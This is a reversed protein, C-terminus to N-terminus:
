KGGARGVPLRQLQDVLDVPVVFLVVVVVIGVSRQKSDTRAGFCAVDRGRDRIESSLPRDRIRLTARVKINKQALECVRVLGLEDVDPHRRHQRRRSTEVLRACLEIAPPRGRFQQQVMLEM